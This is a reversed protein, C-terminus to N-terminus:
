AISKSPNFIQNQICDPHINWPANPKCSAVIYDIFNRVYGPIYKTKLFLLHVDITETFCHDTLAILTGNKIENVCLFCPLMCLGAGDIAFQKALLFENIVIKKRHLNEVNFGGLIVSGDVGIITHTELDSPTSPMGNKEVYAPSTVYTFNVKDLARAIMSSDELPGMRLAVDIGGNVLCVHQDSLTVEMKLDPNQELFGSLLDSVISNSFARPMSLRIVGAPSNQYEQVKINASEVQEIIHICNEYYEEGAVTLEFSRTTRRILTVGLADELQDIRRSITQKSTNLIRSALTLSRNEAVRAFVYLDNLNINRM